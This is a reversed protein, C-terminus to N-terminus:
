GLTVILEDLSSISTGFARSAPITLSYRLASDDMTYTQLQINKLYFNVISGSFTGLTINADVPTKQIAAVRIAEQGASDDEYLTAQLTIQRVDGMSDTPTYTGFTDRVMVNGTNVKVQATRILAVSDGGLVFAGTFGAIIGGHSVPSSPEAPFSGLGMQEDASADSFYDSEITFKGTGSCTWEAIDAGLNFTAEDVVLGGGIRQNLTAPKRYQAMAFSLNTSNGGPEDVFPGYVLGSVGGPGTGATSAANFICQMIPDFDPLTGNTGSPALSGEYSWKAYERGRVGITQTRFGTKDRRILTAIDNDMTVKIHRLYNSNGFSPLTIAGNAAFAPCMAVYIRELRSLSPNAM